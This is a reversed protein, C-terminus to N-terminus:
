NGYNIDKLQNMSIEFVNAYRELTKISLKNFKKLKFHRKVQWKYLGAYDALIGIDMKHLEMYYELPSTEKNLVRAKAKKIRENIDQIANELAIAKPKWGSSQVTIYEGKDDIAYCLEKYNDKELSSKDQPVDKKKM